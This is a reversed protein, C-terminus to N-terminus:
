AGPQHSLRAVAVVQQALIGQLALADVLVELAGQALLRAHAHSLDVDQEPIEGALVVIRGDVFEETPMDFGQGAIGAGRVAVM